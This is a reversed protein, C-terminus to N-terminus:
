EEDLDVYTQASTKTCRLLSLLGDWVVKPLASAVNDRRRITLRVRNSM